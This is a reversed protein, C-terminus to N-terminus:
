RMLMPATQIPIAGTFLRLNTLRELANKLEM